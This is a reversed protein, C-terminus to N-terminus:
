PTKVKFKPSYPALVYSKLSSAHDYKCKSFAEPWAAVSSPFLSPHYNVFDLCPPWDSPLQIKHSLCHCGLTSVTSISFSNFPDPVCKLPFVSLTQLRILDPCTTLSITSSLIPSEQSPSTLPHYPVEQGFAPRKNRDASLVSCPTSSLISLFSWDM